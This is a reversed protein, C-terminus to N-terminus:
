APVARPHARRDRDGPRRRPAAPSVAGEIELLLRKREVGGAYGTLSGDSGVVRHCPVLISVPNRGVASGVARSAGPRGVREALRAYSITAGRPITRLEDWVRRQFPTGGRFAVEVPATSPRGELEADIAAGIAAFAEPDHRWAPDPAPGGRHGPLYCGTLLTGGTASREGVLLLTGLRSPHRAYLTPNPMSTTM